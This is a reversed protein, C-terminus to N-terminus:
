EMVEQLCFHIGGGFLAAEEGVHASIQQPLHLHLWGGLVLIAPPACVSRQGPHRQNGDAVVSLLWAAMSAM